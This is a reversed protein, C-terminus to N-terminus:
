ADEGQLARQLYAKLRDAVQTMRRRLRLLPAVVGPHILAHRVVDARRLTGSPCRFAEFDLPLTEAAEDSVARVVNYPIGAQASM